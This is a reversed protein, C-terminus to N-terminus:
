CANQGLHNIWAQEPLVGQGKNAAPEAIPTHGRRPGCVLPSDAPGEPLLCSVQTHNPWGEVQDPVTGLALNLEPATMCAARYSLDHMEKHNLSATNSAALPTKLSESVKRLHPLGAVFPDLPRYGSVLPGLIDSGAM